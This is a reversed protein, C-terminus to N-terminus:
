LEDPMEVPIGTGRVIPMCADWKRLSDSLATALTRVVDM